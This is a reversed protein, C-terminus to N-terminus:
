NRLGLGYAKGMAGANGGSEDYRDLERTLYDQEKRARREGLEKLEADM